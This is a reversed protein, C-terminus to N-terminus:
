FEKFIEVLVKGEPKFLVARVELHMIVNGSAVAMYEEGMPDLPGEKKVRRLVIDLEENFSAEAKRAAAPSEANTFRILMTGPEVLFYEWDDKSGERDTGALHDWTQMDYGNATAFGVFEAITFVKDNGGCGAALVCILLGLSCVVRKM